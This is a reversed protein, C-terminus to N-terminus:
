DSMYFWMRACHTQELSRLIASYLHDYFVCKLIIASFLATYTIMFFFKLIIPLLQWLYWKQRTQRSLLISTAGFGKGRCTRRSLSVKVVVFCTNTVVFCTKQQSLFRKYTNTAVSINQRSLLKTTTLISKDHCLKQWLLFSVQPLEWSDYKLLGKWRDVMIMLNESEVMAALVAIEGMSEQRSLVAFQGFKFVRHVRVWHLELLKHAHGLFFFFVSGLVLAGSHGQRVPSWRHHLFGELPQLHSRSEAKHSWQGQVQSVSWPLFLCCCCSFNINADYHFVPQCGLCNM